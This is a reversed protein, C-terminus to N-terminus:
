RLTWISRQLYQKDPPPHPRPLLPLPNPSLLALSSPLLALDVVVVGVLGGPDEKTGRWVVRRDKKSEFRKTWRSKSSTRWRPLPLAGPSHSLFLSLAISLSCATILPPQHPPSPRVSPLRAIFSVRRCPLSADLLASRSRARCLIVLNPRKEGGRLQRRVKLM